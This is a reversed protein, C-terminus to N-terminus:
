QTAVNISAQFVNTYNRSYSGALTGNSTVNNISANGLNIYEYSLGLKVVQFFGYEMGVGLRVQRDMPLVPLRKSSTTPSSDYSAGAQVLFVPTLHYQGGLGLRYTNRWNEPTDVSYGDVTLISNQMASWNAWGLEGLLNFNNSLQYSISAIINAPMVLKTQATPTNPLNLFDLDGHLHHEIKSRYANGIKAADSPTLMVGLNFGAATSNLKPMIQGDVPPVQSIPVAVTENLYAYEIAIGGGISLWPNVKYSLAPNLNLTILTLEQIDYRGVWHTNYNLAGAYPTTLSVGFELDRGIPHVVYGGITPALVGANSGNNGSITTSSNPSFNTFPLFLQTGLMFQTGKLENMGAPNFYATSADSAIVAQGVGATGVVPTGLEYFQFAAAHSFSSFSLAALTLTLRSLRFHKM